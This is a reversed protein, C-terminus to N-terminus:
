NVTKINDWDLTGECESYSPLEFDDGDSDQGFRKVLWQFSCIWALFSFVIQLVWRKWASVPHVINPFISPIHQTTDVYPHFIKEYTELARAPHEHKKLKGLEGALVYAGTLALSTGMGTLPTPAYAADGLCVVRSNSWKMMKIQQVAQFYFDPAQPMADLIRQAQWGADAFEKRLLDEQTQRDSRSADEWSKKQTASRPVITCAARTTGHPDPRLFIIRSRLAHYISWLDDDVLLRPITWFGVYMNKDIVTVSEPSFCQQRVKSWQGDAAVLLDYEQTKGNSLEVVVSNDDNSVITHITTGFVYEVNPFDKTAEYLILALDARLIEWESTLSAAAGKRVPFLAFPRGKPDIFQSGKETTNHNLVKKELGMRKVVTRASGTIDVNQGHPLLAETKEIITVRAGTKALWWALAPGAIGAGSILIHM